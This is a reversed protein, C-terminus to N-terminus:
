SNSTVMKARVVLRKSFVGRHNDWSTCTLLTLTPETTPYTVEVNTPEVAESDTVQYAVIKGSDAIMVLDGAELKRLNLFPGFDEVALQIHGAIVINGSDGLWSTKELHGVNHGLRQVDWSDGVLPLEVIPIARGLGLKPIYLSRKGVPQFSPIQIGAQTPAATAPSTAASTAPQATVPAATASPAVTSAAATITATGTATVASTASATVPVTPTWTPLAMVVPVPNSNSRGVLLAGLVVAQIVLLVVLTVIFILLGRSKRNDPARRM